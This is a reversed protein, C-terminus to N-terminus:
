EMGFETRAIIENQLEDSLEVFYASYGAVRVLLNAYNEPHKKAEILDARNLVNFQVHHIRLAAFSELLMCFKDFGDKNKLMSSSFKMNLLTGNTGYESGARNVSNLLATPGNKDRGYVASLGGDALPQGNKRGDPTAGM